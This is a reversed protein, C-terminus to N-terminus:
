GEEKEKELGFSINELYMRLKGKSREELFTRKQQTHSLASRANNSVAQLKQRRRNAFITVDFFDM